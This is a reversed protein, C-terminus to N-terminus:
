TVASWTYVQLKLDHFDSSLFSALTLRLDQSDTQRLSLLKNAFRPRYEHESPELYQQVM